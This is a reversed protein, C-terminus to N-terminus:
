GALLERVKEWDPKMAASKIKQYREIEEKPLRYDDLSQIVFMMSDYDFSAAVERMTEYAEALEDDGILPKNSDDEEVKYLPALKAQYSLYLQLLEANNDKIENIYGSNGADELRKARESLENAGIVRASSKLAHVKTTYNKWDAKEFYEAIERAGNAVSEAFVTLADIYLDTSGCNNIGDTINLGKVKILWDPLKIEETKKDESNVEETSIIVKDEPLYKIIMNELASSNIPKTLYDAFGAEIYQARAGSVANATLSIVPTDKNLNHPINKMQKLTEIGDIGPMRHDLFIIDYHEKTVLHLCEYGSEATYIQIKTQKLLGKVVTLNMVTDDVVLIKAKPATFKEHYKQHQSISHRYTQEFDGISEWNMVKQILWFSFTSGKGYVSEVDLKTDMLALLRQTINMGLGTGEINRNRQEEIREFASFLKSIDEQKIGIGTDKVSFKIAIEDESKKSFDVDLTISGTETYKVANTLINTVIQKIRIEDGFLITPLNKNANVILKLGKNEARKQIMNVLDNLLSSLAYEVPIIEMKGAEIKSFDLIDNVLGLLNNSANRINEAYELITEDKCERLIMENMGLIANIPTRIEHSMNSLFQSKAKNASEAEHAARKFNYNSVKLEDTTAKLFAALRDSLPIIDANHVHVDKVLGNCSLENLCDGERMGVAVLSDALSGGKGRYRYIESSGHCYIADPLFRQFSEIEFKANDRLVITRSGCITLFICQPGFKRMRESSQWTEHLIEQPNGFSLRIKEGEYVDSNLYIWGNEDYIAAVRAVDFGNRNILFPFECTNFLLFKNPKVNLYKEYIKVAPINDITAICTSGVTKTIRMEKGLPKWGLLAEAYVNLNEGSYVILIIGANYYNNGMIYQTVNENKVENILVQHHCVVREKDIYVYGAEAGFFPVDEYGNSVDELFTPLFHKNGTCLVEIAKINKIKSLKHRFYITAEGANVLENDCELITVESTEFYCCSIIAYSELYVEEKTVDFQRGFNTLSIGVIKAKPLFKQIDDHIQKADDDLFQSTLVKVLITHAQKYQKSILINMLCNKLEDANNVKYSRQIM